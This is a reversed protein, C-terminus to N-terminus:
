NKTAKRSVPQQLKFKSSFAFFNFCKRIRATLRTKALLENLNPSKKWWSSRDNMYKNMLRFVIISHDPNLAISQLRIIHSNNSRIAHLWHLSLFSSENNDSLIFGISQVRWEAKIVPNFTFVHLYMIVSVERSCWRFRLLWHRRISTLSTVKSHLSISLNVTPIIKAFVTIM